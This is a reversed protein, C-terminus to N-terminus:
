TCAHKKCKKPFYRWARITLRKPRFADTLQVYYFTMKKLPRGTNPQMWSEMFESWDGRWHGRYGSAAVGLSWRPSPILWAILLGSQDDPTKGLTCDGIWDSWILNTFNKGDLRSPRVSPLQRSPRGEKLNEWRQLPNESARNLTVSHNMTEERILDKREWNSLWVPRGVWKPTQLSRGSRLLHPWQAWM